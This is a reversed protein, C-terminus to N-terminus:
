AKAKELQLVEEKRLQRDYVFTGLPLWAAIFAYLFKRFPWGLTEKVYYALGVYAVFLMGHAWGVYKVAIPQGYFYKLPMAILLLVLFSLGEAIGTKRLLQLPTM